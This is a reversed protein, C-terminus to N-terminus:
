PGIGDIGFGATQEHLDAANVSRGGPPYRAIPSARQCFTDLYRRRIKTLNAIARWSGFECDRDSQQITARWLYAYSAM